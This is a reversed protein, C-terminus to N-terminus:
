TDLVVIGIGWKARHGRTEEQLRGSCAADTARTAATSRVGVHASGGDDTAEQEEEDDSSNNRLPGGNGGGMQPTPGCQMAAEARAAAAEDKLDLVGCALDMEVHPAGEQIHEIDLDEPRTAAARALEANARQM